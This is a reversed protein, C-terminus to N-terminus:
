KDELLQEVELMRGLALEATILVQGCQPCQPLQETFYHGLYGVNAKKIEIPLSCKVCMWESEASAADKESM